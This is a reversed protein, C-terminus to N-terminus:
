KKKEKKIVTENNVFVGTMNYVEPERVSRISSVLASVSNRDFGSISIVDKNVQVDLGAPVLFKTSHSFGTVISLIRGDFAVKYGVGVLKLVKSYKSTADSICARLLSYMTGIMAKNKRIVAQSLGDKFAFSVGSSDSVFDLIDSRYPLKISNGSATFSVVGDSVQASVASPLAVASRAIKSFCIVGM